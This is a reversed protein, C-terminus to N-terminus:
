KAGRAIPVGVSHIAEPLTISTKVIGCGPPWLVLLFTVVIGLILLETIDERQFSM